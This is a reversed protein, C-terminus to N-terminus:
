KAEKLSWEFSGKIPEPTPSVHFPSDSPEKVHFARWVVNQKNFGVLKCEYYITAGPKWNGSITVRATGSVQGGAAGLEGRGKIVDRSQGLGPQGLYSPHNAVACEVAVKSINASLQTLNVPVEFTVDGAGAQAVAQGGFLTTVFGSVALLTRFSM